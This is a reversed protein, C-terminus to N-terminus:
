QIRKGTIITRCLLRYNARNNVILNQAGLRKFSRAAKRKAPSLSLAGIERAYCEGCTGSLGTTSCHRGHIRSL